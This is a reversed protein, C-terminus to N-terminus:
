DYVVVLMVLLRMVVLVFCLYETVHMEVISRLSHAQCKDICAVLVVCGDINNIVDVVVVVVVSCPM